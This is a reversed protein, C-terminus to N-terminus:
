RGFRYQDDPVYSKAQPSARGEQEWMRVAARWDKMPSKGVMWGKSAYFDVFRQADVANKRQACYARVEAATPKNFRSRTHTGPAGAGAHADACVTDTDTDTDPKIPKEGSGPNVERNDQNQAPRGGMQGNKRNRTCTDEYKVRDRDLQNALLMFMAQLAGDLSAKEGDEHAFLAKIIQGAQEDSMAEFACRYDDYLQFSKKTM